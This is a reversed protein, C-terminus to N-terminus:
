RACVRSNSKPATSRPLCVCRYVCYTSRYVPIARRAKGKQRVSRKTSKHAREAVSVIAGATCQIADREGEDREDAPAREEAHGRGGTTTGTLYQLRCRVLGGSLHFKTARMSLTAAPSTWDRAPTPAQRPSPLPPWLCCVPRACATSAGSCLRRLHACVM